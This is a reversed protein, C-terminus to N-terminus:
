EIESSEESLDFQATSDLAYEIADRDERSLTDLYPTVEIAMRVEVDEVLGSSRGLPYYYVTDRYEVTLSTLTASYESAVWTESRAVLLLENKGSPYFTFGVKLRSNEGYLSVEVARGPVTIKEVRTKWSQDGPMRTDVDILLYLAEGLLKKVNDSETTEQAGSLVPMCLFLFAKLSLRRIFGTPLIIL